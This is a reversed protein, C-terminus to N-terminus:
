CSELLQRDLLLERNSSIQLCTVSMHVVDRTISTFYKKVDESESLRSITLGDWRM